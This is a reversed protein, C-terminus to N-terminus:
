ESTRAAQAIRKEARALTLAAPTNPPSSYLTDLFTRDARTLEAQREGSEDFLTLITGDSAAVRDASDGSLARMTVYDALQVVSQGGVATRDILVMASIIDRRTPVYILSHAAHMTVRPLDVLNERRDVHLGDRTRTVVRTFSRVGGPEEFLARRQGQDLGEFLYPRREGLGNVFARGDNLVSVLINVTCTEEDALRLGLAQANERIRGIMMEAFDQRLGVIGPCVPDQFRPLPEDRAGGSHAQGTAPAPALMLLAAASLLPAFLRRPM